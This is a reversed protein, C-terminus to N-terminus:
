RHPDYTRYTPARVSEVDGPRQAGAWHDWQQAQIGDDRLAPHVGSPGVGPHYGVDSELDSPRGPGLDSPKADFMGPNPMGSESAANTHTRHPAGLDLQSDDGTAYEDNTYKRYPSASEMRAPNATHRLLGARDDEGVETGLTDGRIRGRGDDSPRLETAPEASGAYTPGVYGTNGNLKNPNQYSVDDTRHRYGVVMWRFGRASAKIIDWPNFADAMAKIGLPGGKYKPAEGSYGSGSMTLPDTHKISYEKWPFAFLHMVAFIAMEICLM